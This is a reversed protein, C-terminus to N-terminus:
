VQLREKLRERARHLHSRVTSPNLGTMVGIEESSYGCIINLSFVLRENENLKNIQEIIEINSFADKIEIHEIEEPMESTFNRNNIYETQKRKIKVTLIKIIWAKFAKEDKLKAISLFADLVADSVADAADHSNRLNCYAIHYLDQYVLSYLEAFADADGAKAKLVCDSFNIKM